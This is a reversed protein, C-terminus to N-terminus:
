KIRNFLRLLALIVIAILIGIYISTIYLYNRWIALDVYNPLNAKDKVLIDYYRKFGILTNIGLMLAFMFTM